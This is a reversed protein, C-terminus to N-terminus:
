ENGWENDLGGVDPERGAARCSQRYQEVLYSMLGGFAEPLRRYFPTLLRVGEAFAEAAEAHRELGRLVTGLVGLGRALDPLFADPRAEALQRYLEVAEQTAQLAEERRGLESLRNGLNNLSGALDPLFAQRNEQALQRYLAVAKQLHELARPHDGLHRHLRALEVRLAALRPLHPRRKRAERELQDEYLRIRGKVEAEPLAWLDRTEASPAEYFREIALLEPSWEKAARAELNPFEFDFVGSNASFLDAAWISFARLTAPTVWFVIPVNLEALAERKLNLHQLVRRAREIREALAGQIFVEPDALDLGETEVFLVPRTDQKQLGDLRERPAELDLPKEPSLQTEVVPRGELARRLREKTQNRGEGPPALAFFVATGDALTLAMELPDLAKEAPRVGGPKAM